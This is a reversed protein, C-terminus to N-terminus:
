PSPLRLAIELLLDPLECLDWTSSEAKACLQRWEYPLVAGFYFAERVAPRGAVIGVADSAGGGRPSVPVASGSSGPSSKADDGDGWDVGDEDDAGAAGCLLAAESCSAIPASLGEETCLSM